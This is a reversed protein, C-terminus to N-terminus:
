GNWKGKIERIKISFSYIKIRQKCNNLNKRMEFFIRFKSKQFKKSKKFFLLPSWLKTFVFYMFCQKNIFINFRHKIKQIVIFKSTFLKFWQDQWCSTKQSMSRQQLTPPDVKTPTTFPWLSNISERFMKNQTTSQFILFKKQKERIWLQHLDRLIRQLHCAM